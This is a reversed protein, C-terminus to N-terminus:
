LCVRRGCAINFSLIRARSGNFITAPLSDQSLGNETATYLLSGNTSVTLSEFALNNYIGADGAVIGNNSGVPNFYAPVTFDRVHTGDLNMERVTPNQFGGSSRQGENSWFLKGSAANFRLGEPDVTNAAFAGGGSQQITTVSNFSVGDMGPTASRTFKSLDLNLTYFRAPNISSRDDSIAFYRQNAADYDIGSLGGVTTGSYVTSTPVIQQGLYNLTFDAAQAGSSLAALAAALLTLKNM